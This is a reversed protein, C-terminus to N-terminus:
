RGARIVLHDFTVQQVANTAPDIVPLYNERMWSFDRLLPYNRYDNYMANLLSTEWFKTATDAGLQKTYSDPNALKPVIEANIFELMMSRPIGGGIYDGGAQMSWMLKTNLWSQETAIDRTALNFALRQAEGGLTRSANLYVAGDLAVSYDKFGSKALANYLEPYQSKMRQVNQADAGSLFGFNRVLDQVGFQYAAAVKTFSGFRPDSLLSWSSTYQNWQSDTACLRFYGLETQVKDSLDRYAQSGAADPNNNAWNTLTAIDQKLGPLIYNDVIQQAAAQVAEKPLLIGPASPDSTESAPDSSLDITIKTRTPSGNVYLANGGLFWVVCSAPTYAAYAPTFLLNFLFGHQGGTGGGNTELCASFNGNMIADKLKQDQREKETLIKGNEILEVIYTGIAKNIDIVTKIADTSVFVNVAEVTNKTVIQTKTLDRNISALAGTVGGNILAAQKATDGITIAGQGVTAFTTGEKDTAKYSLQFKDGPFKGLFQSAKNLSQNLYGGIQALMSPSPPAPPVTYTQWGGDGAAFSGTQGAQQRTIVPSASTATPRAQQWGFSGLPITVNVSASISSTKDYDHINEYTFTGTNINLPTGASSEIVAGKVNTNGTVNLTTGNVGNITTLSNTWAKDESGRVYTFGISGSNHLPGPTGFNSLSGPAANGFPGGSALFSGANGLMTGTQSLINTNPTFGDPLFSATQGLISTPGPLTTSVSGLGIGIGLSFGTQSSRSTLTDQRSKSRSTAAWM